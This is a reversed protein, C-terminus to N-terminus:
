KEPNEENEGKEEPADKKDYNLMSTPISTGMEKAIKQLYMLKPVDKYVHTIYIKRLMSTGVKKGIFAHLRQNITTPLLKNDNDKSFVYVSTQHKKWKFIWKEMEKPIEVRQENYTSATKYIRFVFEYFYKKTSKDYQKKSIYNAGDADKENWFMESWDLSRRPPIFIGACCLFLIYNQLSHKEQSTLKTQNSLNLFRQKNKSYMKNIEEFDIWNEKEKETLNQEGKKDKYEKIYELMKERIRTDGSLVVLSSLLTKKYSTNHNDDLFTIIPKLKGLDLDKQYNHLFGMILSVYTRVSSDSLDKRKSKFLEVLDPRTIDKKIIM